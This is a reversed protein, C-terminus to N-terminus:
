INYCQIRKQFSKDFFSRLEKQKQLGWKVNNYKDTGLGDTYSQRLCQPQICTPIHLM